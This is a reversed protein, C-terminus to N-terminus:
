RFSRVSPLWHRSLHQHWFLFAVRKLCASHLVWYGRKFVGRVSAFLCGAGLGGSQFLFGESRMRSFPFLAAALAKFQQEVEIM